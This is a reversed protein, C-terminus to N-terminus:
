LNMQSLLKNCIKKYNWVGGNLRKFHLGYLKMRPVRTIAIQFSVLQRPKGAELTEHSSAENFNDSSKDGSTAGRGPVFDQGIAVDAECAIIISADSENRASAEGSDAQYVVHNEALVRAVEELILEPPKSSTTSVNFFWGSVARLEDRIRGGTSSSPTASGRRGQLSSPLAATASQPERLTVVSPATASSTTPTSFRRLWEKQTDQAQQADRYPKREVISDNTAVPTPPLLINPPRSYPGTRPVHIERVEGERVVANPPATMQPVSAPPEAPMARTSPDPTSARRDKSGIANTSAYKAASKTGAARAAAVRRLDQASGGEAVPRLASVAAVVDEGNVPEARVNPTSTSARKSLGQAMSSRRREARHRADERQVMEGLLFYTARVPNPKDFDAGEGFAKSVDEHSYGFILLRSVIGPDLASVDKIIPREPLYNPPPASYGENVWKHQLVEDLTARRKPDVTILRSILHRADPNVYDPCTYSGQAIKRYLVKMNDDDFPLHGCLLAFLIVGLSWMDVEPGEYKQGLIMEPAAYFPSTDLLGNSSFNNGFGFDIIKITKSEDLLLNEPKLDRHIVANKHCYDVASLVQRFFSRAEKEKVRKHAVIYDFLEGGSAYEMVIYISDEHEVVDYVKVIHPHNLLRLFRIERQLRSVQKQSQVQSKEIVKVAVKEGTTSDLGLRVKGYTGQGISRELRWRGVSKVEPKASASSSPSPPTTSSSAAVANENGASPSGVITKASM